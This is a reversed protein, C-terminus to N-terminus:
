VCPRNLTTLHPTSSVDEVYFTAGRLDWVVNRHVVSDHTDHITVGKEIANEIANGELLCEPCHSLHHMHLCDPVDLVSAGMRLASFMRRLTM